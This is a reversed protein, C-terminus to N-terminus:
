SNVAHLGDIGDVSEVGEGQAFGGALAYGATGAVAATAVYPLAVVTVHGARQWNNMEDWRAKRAAKITKTIDQPTQGKLMALLQAETAQAATQVVPPAAPITTNVETKTDTNTDTKTKSM